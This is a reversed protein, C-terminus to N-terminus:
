FDRRYLCPANQNRYFRNADHLCDKDPQLLGTDENMRGLLTIDGILRLHGIVAELLEVKCWTGSLMRKAEKKSPRPLGRSGWNTSHVITQRAWEVYAFLATGIADNFARACGYRLERPSFSEFSKPLPPRDGDWETLWTSGRLANFTARPNKRLGDHLLPKM